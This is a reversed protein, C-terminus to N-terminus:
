RKKGKLSRKPKRLAAAKASKAASVGLAVWGALSRDSDFGDPGVFVFGKLPRGTFTMPRAHPRNLATAHQDAPIRVMLEDKVIGCCMKGDLLFTLGGFMKKESLGREGDLAGRLREALGEDYAM